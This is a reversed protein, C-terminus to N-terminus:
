SRWVEPPELLLLELLLLELWTAIPARAAAPLEILRLLLLSPSRAIAGMTYAHTKHRQESTNIRTLVHYSVRKDNTEPWPAARPM